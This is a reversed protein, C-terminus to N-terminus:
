VLADMLDDALDDPHELGVSLRLLNQPTGTEPPEISARHEILSEVSGLSTARFFLKTRAAVALARERDGRVRISLMGGFSRMQAAAIAHGPHTELGPYHVSEVAAHTELMRALWLASESQARVRLPLTRIGRLVLWCDFPSPVAGAATQIARISEFFEDQVRAVLAGGLVDAHGGLYKTTSHVVMDFGLELPRQLVPTAWTNDCVCLAGAARAIGAIASLDAIALLPNSPTEVWILRTRPRLAARVSAPDDMAVSSAELGWRAFIDRLIRATGYYADHPVIVHDGPGLAQFLAATAASGSSFAAAAAGGELIALCRELSDRTPNGPRTYFYGRPYTGDADREFTTSLHIPPAIAGTGPDAERAAHVALTEIKM